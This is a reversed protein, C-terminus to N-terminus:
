QNPSSRRPNLSPKAHGSVSASSRPSAPSEAAAEPAPVQAVARRVFRVVAVTEGTADPETGLVRSIERHDLDVALVRNGRGSGLARAVEHSQEVRYTVAAQTVLLGPPDRPDAFALPSAREWDGSEANEEPTGFANWLMERSDRLRPARQPDADRAVDYSPADLAVFGRIAKASAGYTELYTPDLAVLAALHAGASHGIVVIRRPDGGRASAHGVLWAIAEGVDDPQAPFRVRAPDPMDPDFPASALRYNVSAFLYGRRTFLEAKKRVGIRKDGKRWGGGHIWVVVPARRVAPARRAASRPTYLDLTNDAASSPALPPTGLDYNIDREVTYPRQAASAATALMLAGVTVAGALAVARRAGFRENM